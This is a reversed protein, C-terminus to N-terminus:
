CLSKDKNVKEFSEILVNRVKEMLDEKTKRTYDSSKIPKAIELVVNGPKVLIRKKPMIPWTGHIIVPIIPVGSDVALVFGGKKFPQINFDQSRTGEPFILVSVGDRINKAARKLSQVASRFNSRDISIYGARQMAYGFLPIKFLEAKALWRFQVPLYALLVPIDFNSLHNSMYIYSGASDINSHGKVTVKIGSAVLICKAWIRAVIHPLDGSKSIFSVFIALIAFFGTVLLIWLIILLTRIMSRNRIKL